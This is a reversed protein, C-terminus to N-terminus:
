VLMQMGLARVQSLRVSEGKIDPSKGEGQPEGLAYYRFIGRGDTIAVIVVGIDGSM